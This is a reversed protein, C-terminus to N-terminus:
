KPNQQSSHSFYLTAENDNDSNFIYILSQSLLWRLKGIVKKWEKKSEVSITEIQSFIELLLCNIFRPKSLLLELNDFSSSKSGIFIKSAKIIYEVKNITWKFESM